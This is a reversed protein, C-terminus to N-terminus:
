HHLHCRVGPPAIFALEAGGRGGSSVRVEPASGDACAVHTGAAMGRAARLVVAGRHEKRAVVSVAHVAQRAASWSASVEVAGKVLIDRFSADQSLDWSPFLLIYSATPAQVLMDAVALSVGLRETMGGSGVSPVFNPQQLQKRGARRRLRGVFM